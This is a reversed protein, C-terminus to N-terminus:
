PLLRKTTMRGWGLMQSFGEAYMTGAQLGRMRSFTRVTDEFDIKDHDKMWKLQSQHCALMKMKTDITDSIDVYETPVFHFGGLNDMYFVPCIDAVADPAPSRGAGDKWLGGTKYHPLSACFSAAFVLQSVAVHDPMYDDPTHTIILDPRVYRLIDTLKNKQEESGGYLHLDGVDMCIHEAGLIEASARSERLRIERLRGPEIVVHGLNGNCLNCMTVSDGKDAFKKLTGACNIEIDDPHCSVALINM